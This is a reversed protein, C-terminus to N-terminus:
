VAKSAKADSRGADIVTMSKKRRLTCSPGHPAAIAPGETVQALMAPVSGDTFMTAESSVNLCITSVCSVCGFCSANVTLPVVLCTAFNACFILMVHLYNFVCM